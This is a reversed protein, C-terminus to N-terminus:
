NLCTSAKPREFPGVVNEIIESVVSHISILSRVFCGHSQSYVMQCYPGDVLGLQGGYVSPLFRM